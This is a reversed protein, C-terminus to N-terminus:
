GKINVRGTFSKGQEINQNQGSDPFIIQLSYTHVKNGETPSSFTGSGLNITSSGTDINQLTTKAPIIEGNQGTNTSVLTWKLANSSFTNSNVILELTYPMDIETTSNGTLTITKTLWPDAKPWINDVSLASGGEYTITMKGGTLSISVTEDEGTIQATFFAYSLGITMLALITIILIYRINNVSNKNNKM